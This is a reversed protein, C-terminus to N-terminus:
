NNFLFKIRERGKGSKLFIEERRADKESYFAEYYILKWPGNNKTYVSKGINHEYFRRKLDNTFGKYLKNNKLSRLIYVYYM